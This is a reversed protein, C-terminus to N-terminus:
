NVKTMNDHFMQDETVRIGNFYSVLHGPMFSRRAFIGEGGGTIASNGLFISKKEHPDMIKCDGQKM